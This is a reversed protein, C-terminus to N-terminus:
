IRFRHPCLVVVCHYEFGSVISKEDDLRREFHGPIQCEPDCLAVLMM